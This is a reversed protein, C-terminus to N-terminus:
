PKCTLNYCDCRNINFDDIFWGREWGQGSDVTDYSFEFIGQEGVLAAPIPISIDDWQDLPRNQNPPSPICFATTNNGTCDVINSWTMGGDISVRITKKDRPSFNDNGGRDQHWSKFTLNAPITTPATVMTGAEVELEAFTFPNVGTRSGDNGFVPQTNPEGQAAQPSPFCPQTGSQTVSNARVCGQYGWDGTFVWGTTDLFDITQMEPCSNCTGNTCISCQADADDCSECEDREFPLFRSACWGNADCTPMSCDPSATSTCSDGVNMEIIECQESGTDCTGMGCESSAYACDADNACACDTAFNLADVYWGREFNCCGDETSYIFRVYGIQGAFGPPVDLTIPDWDNIDRDQTFPECFPYPPAGTEPCVAVNTFSIGDLSVQVGKLDYPASGEDIHWSLFQLQAPILTPPTTASSAEIEGAGNYGYPHKRNGDTGLVPRAFAYAGDVIETDDGIATCGMDALDIMGDGDNDLGDNCATPQAESADDESACGPDQGVDILGDGDNDMGDSCAPVPPGFTVMPPTESYIAWGGTLQWGSASIPTRFTKQAARAPCDNCA